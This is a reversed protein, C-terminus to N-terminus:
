RGIVQNFLLAAGGAAGGAVLVAAPLSPNALWALGGALLASIFALLLVVAARVTLLPAPSLPPTM